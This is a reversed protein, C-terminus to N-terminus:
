PQVVRVFSEYHDDTYYREGGAGAIIRRAGRDDSGPTVVTYEHYYGSSRAPLRRERNQFVAGDQEYPFPGGGAILRLTTRAEAPLQEPRVAGADTRELTTAPRPVNTTVIAGPATTATPSDKLDSTRALLVVAAVAALAM